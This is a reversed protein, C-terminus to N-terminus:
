GKFFKFFIILLIVLGIVIPVMFKQMMTQFSLMRTMGKFEASANKLGEAKKGVAELNEGRHLIEEINQRMITSVETLNENLRSLAKSSQPDRYEAKKKTIQRDFKIFYYPKEITEIHSRYDVSGTGFERKLEEQFLRHIEEIFAFALNKPYAMDFLAMYCVGDEMKYHFVLGGSAEVSCRPPMNHLKRLLQKAQTKLQQSVKNTDDWTEVLILGDMSRAIFTVHAM